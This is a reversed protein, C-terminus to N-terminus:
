DGPELKQKMNVMQTGFGTVIGLIGEDYHIPRGEDNFAGFQMHAWGILPLGKGPATWFVEVTYSARPLLFAEERTLWRDPDDADPDKMFYYLNLVRIRHPKIDTIEMEEVVEGDVDRILRLLPGEYIVTGDHRIVSIREITITGVCDPNTLKFFTWWGLYNPTAPDETSGLMGTGVLKEGKMPEHGNAQAYAFGGLGGAILVVALMVAILKKM